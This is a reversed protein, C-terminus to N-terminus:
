SNCISTHKNPPLQPHNVMDVAAVANLPPVSPARCSGCPRWPVATVFNSPVSRGAPRGLVAWSGREGVAGARSSGRDAASSSSGTSQVAGLPSAVAASPSDAAEALAPAAPAAEDLRRTVLGGGEGGGCSGNTNGGDTTAGTYGSISVTNSASISSSAQAAAPGGNSSSGSGGGGGGGDASHAAVAAQKGSDLPRLRQWTKALAEVATSSSTRSMAAASVPASGGDVKGPASSLKVPAGGPPGQRGPAAQQGWAEAAGGDEDVTLLSGPASQGPTTLGGGSHVHAAEAAGDVLKGSDWDGGTAAKCVGGGATSVKTTSDYARGKGSQPPSSGHTLDGDGSANGFEVLVVGKASGSGESAKPEKSERGGEQRRRRKLFMLLGLLVVLLVVGGCAAGVAAGVTKGSDSKRAAPAGMVVGGIIDGPSPPRPLLAPPLVPPAPLPPPVSDPRLVPAPLPPFVSDPRLLSSPAPRPSPVLDPLPVPPAPLPPPVPYLLPASPAPPPQATVPEIPAKGWVVRLRELYQGVHGSLGVLYSLPPPVLEFAATCVSAPTYPTTWLRGASTRFVLREVFAGACGSVSVVVEGYALHLVHWGGTSATGATEPEDLPLEDASDPWEGVLLARRRTKSADGFATTATTTTATATDNGGSEEVSSSSNLCPDRAWRTVRLGSVLHVLALQVLDDGQVAVSVALSAIPQQLMYSISVVAGRADGPLPSPIGGMMFPCPVGLPGLGVSTSEQLVHVGPAWPYAVSPNVWPGADCNASPPSSSYPAVVTVPTAGAATTVPAASLTSAKCMTSVGLDTCLVPILVHPSMDYYTMEICTSSDAQRGGATGNQGSTTSGSRGSIPESSMDVWFYVAGNVPYFFAFVNLLSTSPVRRVPVCLKM